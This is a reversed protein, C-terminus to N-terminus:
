LFCKRNQQFIYRKENEFYCEKTVQIQMAGAGYELVVSDGYDKIIAGIDIKYPTEKIFEKLCSSCYKKHDLDVWQIDHKGICSNCKVCFLYAYRNSYIGPCEEWKRNYQKLKKQLHYHLKM